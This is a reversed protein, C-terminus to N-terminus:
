CCAAYILKSEKFEVNMIIKQIIIIIKNATSEFTYRGSLFSYLRLITWIPIPGIIGKAQHSLREFSAAIARALTIVM